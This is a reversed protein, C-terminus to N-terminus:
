TGSLLQELSLPPRGTLAEVNGTVASLEGNAIALYTSVWADVQWRPAGYEKRSAYAEDVTEHHFTVPRGTIRATIEAAESLTFAEPGTLSYTHGAHADPDALVTDAVAAIDDLAVAALRGDGAPGRIVGDDGAFYPLFDLYLNDRLFTWRMGSATIHDETAAHDRALTFTADPAAGYFSTYVVHGVGAAAAADVFCRHQGVRDPDESASVMFLVDVGALAGVAAEFDDYAAVAM